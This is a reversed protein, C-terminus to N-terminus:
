TNPLTGVTFPKGKTSAHGDISKGIVFRSRQSPKMMRDCKGTIDQNTVFLSDFHMSEPSYGLQDGDGLSPLLTKHLEVSPTNNSLQHKVRDLKQM